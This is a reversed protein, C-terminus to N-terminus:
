LDHIDDGLTQLVYYSMDFDKLMDNPNIDFSRKHATNTNNNSPVDDPIDIICLPDNKVVMEIEDDNCQELTITTADTLAMSDTPSNPMTEKKDSSTPTTPANIDLEIASIDSDNSFMRNRKPKYDTSEASLMRNRLASFSDEAPHEQSDFININTPSISDFHRSRKFSPSNRNNNYERASSVPDPMIDYQEDDIDISDDDIIDDPVSEMHHHSVVQHHQNNNNNNNDNHDNNNNFYKRDIQNQTYQQQQETPYANNINNANINVNCSSGNSNPYYCDLPPPPPPPCGQHHYYSNNNNNNTNINPDYHHESYSHRHSRGQHHMNPPNNAYSDMMCAHDSRHRRHNHQQQQHMSMMDPGASMARSIPPPVGGNGNANADNNCYNPNYNNHPQQHQYPQMMPMPMPMSNNNPIPNYNFPGHHSQSRAHGGAHGGATGSYSYSRYHGNMRPPPSCNSNSREIASGMSPSPSIMGFSGSGMSGTGGRRHRNQRLAQKAKELAKEESVMRWSPSNKGGNANTVNVGGDAQELFRGPPNMRKVYEVIERAVKAKSARNSTSLYEDRRDMVLARFKINGSYDNPGSGRGCLVDNQNLQKVLKANDNNTKTNSNTNNMGEM